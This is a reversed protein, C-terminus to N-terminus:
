KLKSRKRVAAALAAIGAFALGFSAPEPSLITTTIDFSNNPITLTQGNAMGDIVFEGYVTYGSEISAFGTVGFSSPGSPGISFTTSVSQDGSGNTSCVSVSGTVTGFNTAGDLSLDAEATGSTFTPFMANEAIFEFILQPCGDVACTVSVNSFKLLSDAFSVVPTACSANECWEASYNSYGSGNSSITKDNGGNITPVPAIFNLAEWTITASATSSSILLIALALIYRKM